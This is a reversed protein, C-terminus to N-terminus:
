PKDTSEPLNIKFLLEVPESTEDTLVFISKKQVGTRKGSTFAVYITGTEGAAVDTASADAVTCGCSTKVELIHVLKKGTNKFDFKTRMEEQGHPADMEIIKKEWELAHVPAVWSALWVLSLRLRSNTKM